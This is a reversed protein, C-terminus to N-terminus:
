VTKIINELQITFDSALARLSSIRTHDGSFKQYKGKLELIGDLLKNKYLEKNTKNKLEADIAILLKRKAKIEINIKKIENELQYLRNLFNTKNESFIDYDILEYNPNKLNEKISTLQSQTKIKENVLNNKNIKLDLISRELDVQNDVTPNFLKKM